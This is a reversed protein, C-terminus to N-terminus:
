MIKVISVNSWVGNFYRMTLNDPSDLTALITVIQNPSANTRLFGSSSLTLAMTGATIGQPVAYRSYASLHVPNNNLNLVASANAISATQGPSYNIRFSYVIYYLSNPSLSIETNGPGVLSIGTGNIFDTTFTILSGPSAPVISM